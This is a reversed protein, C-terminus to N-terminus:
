NGGQLIKSFEVNETSFNEMEEKCKDSDMYDQIRKDLDCINTKSM